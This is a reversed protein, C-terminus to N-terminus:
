ILKFAFLREEDLKREFKFPAPEGLQDAHTRTLTLSRVPSGLYSGLSAILEATQPGPWHAASPFLGLELGERDKARRAFAFGIEEDDQHLTLYAGRPLPMFRLLEAAVDLGNQGAVREVEHLRWERWKEVAALREVREIKIKASAPPIATLLTLNATALGLLTGGCAEIL